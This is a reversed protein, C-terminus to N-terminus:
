RDEDEELEDLLRDTPTDRELARDEDEVDAGLKLAIADVRRLLRTVEHEALLNIQLDLDARRDAARALRNQAILVFTSLFIAELSVIMTLLGFPYPDFGWIPPDGVNVAIWAGFWITHLVVFRMSGSFAAITDAVREAVTRREEDRARRRHVAEIHQRITHDLADLSPDDAAHYDLLRRISM